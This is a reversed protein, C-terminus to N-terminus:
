TSVGGQGSADLYAQLGAMTTRWVEGDIYVIFNFGTGAGYEATGNQYRDLRGDPGIGGVVAGRGHEGAEFKIYWGAPKAAPKPLTVVKM